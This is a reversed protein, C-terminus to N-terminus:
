DCCTPRDCLETVLTGPNAPSAQALKEGSPSEVRGIVRGFKARSWADRFAQFENSAVEKRPSVASTRVSPAAHQQRCCEQNTCKEASVGKESISKRRAEEAQSHRGFKAKFREERFPDGPQAFAMSALLVGAIAIKSYTKM